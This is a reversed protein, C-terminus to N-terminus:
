ADKKRRIKNTVVVRSVTLSFGNQWMDQCNAKRLRYEKRFLIMLFDYLLTISSLDIVVYSLLRMVFIDSFLISKSERYAPSSM